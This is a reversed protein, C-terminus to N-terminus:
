AQRKGYIKITPGNYADGARMPTISRPSRNKQNEQAKRLWNRAFALYNKPSRGKAALWDKMKEIELRVELNSFQNELEVIAKENELISMSNKRAREKEKNGKNEKNRKILITDTLTDATYGDNHERQIRPTDARYEDSLHCPNLKQYKCLKVVTIRHIVQTTVMHERKLLEFYRRVRNISWRWSKSLGRYSIILEGRDLEIIQSNRLIKQKRFAAKQILDLWAEAASFSRDEQWFQHEFFQRWLPIYGIKM